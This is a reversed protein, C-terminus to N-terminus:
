EPSTRELCRQSYTTHLIYHISHLIHITTHIMYRINYRLYVTDYDQARAARLMHRQEVRSVNGRAALGAPELALPRQETLDDEAVM